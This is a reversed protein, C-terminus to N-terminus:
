VTGLVDRIIWELEDQKRMIDKALQLQCRTRVLNHASYNCKFYVDGDLYDKLFRAALEITISFTAQVLSNINGFTITDYSYITDPLRFHEGVQKLVNFM